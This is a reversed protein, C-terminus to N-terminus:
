DVVASPMKAVNGTYGVGLIYEVSVTAATANGVTARVCDFGNQVDLDQADVEIIYKLTKSNTSDTTFTNSSVATETYADGAANDINQWMRTFPLTKAGTGAVATAQSLGIASGTVTTGNQVTVLITLHQYNKLSVWRPAASSPVVPGLGTVFKFKDRLQVGASM